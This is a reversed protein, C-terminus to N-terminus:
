KIQRIRWRKGSPPARQEKNVVPVPLELKGIQYGHEWLDECHCTWVASELRGAWSLGNRKSNFGLPWQPVTYGM